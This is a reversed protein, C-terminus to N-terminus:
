VRLHPNLLTTIPRLPPISEATVATNATSAKPFALTKPTEIGEGKEDFPLMTSAIFNAFFIPIFTTENGIVDIKEVRLDEKFFANPFRFGSTVSSFKCALIRPVSRIAKDFLYLARRKVVPLLDSSEM